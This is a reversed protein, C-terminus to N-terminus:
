LKEDNQTRTEATIRRQYAKADSKYLLVSQKTLANFEKARNIAAAHAKAEAASKKAEVAAAKKAVAAAKKAVAAEKQRASKRAEAAKAIAQRYSATAHQSSFRNYNQESYKARHQKLKQIKEYRLKAAAQQIVAKKAAADLAHKMFERYKEAAPNISPPEQRFPHLAEQIKKQARWVREENTLKAVMDKSSIRKSVDLGVHGSQVVSPINNSVLRRATERLSTSRDGNNQVSVGAVGIVGVNLPGADISQVLALIVLLLELPAGFFCM